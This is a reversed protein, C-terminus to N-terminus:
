SEVATLGADYMTRAATAQGGAGKQYQRRALNAGILGGLPSGAFCRRHRSICRLKCERGRARKGKQSVDECLAESAQFRSIDHVVISAARTSPRQSALLAAM